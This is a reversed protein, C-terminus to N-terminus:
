PRGTRIMGEQTITAVLHGDRTWLHGTTLGRGGAASPSVQELLLWDNLDVHRHWWLAHNITAMRLGPTVWALGHRRLIPEFPTFDSAFALIADHVAASAELPAVARMWVLQRDAGAPDPRLYIPDTVHRIDIPRQTSWYRAIPHDVDRLVEATTPLQEPDPAEPATGEHELGPQLEQFSSTM